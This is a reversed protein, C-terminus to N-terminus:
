KLLAPNRILETLQARTLPPNVLMPGLRGRGHFGTSARVTLSRGDTLRLVADYERGGAPEPALDSDAAPTEWVGLLAGDSLKRTTCDIRGDKAADKCPNEPGAGGAGTDTESRTAIHVSIYGVGEPRTVAYDGGYRGLPKPLAISQSQKMVRALSIESIRGTGPPLLKAFRGAKTARDAATPSNAVSAGHGAGPVGPGLLLGAATAAAVAGTATARRRWRVRAAKAFVAESGRGMPVQIEDVARALLDRVHETEAEATEQNM